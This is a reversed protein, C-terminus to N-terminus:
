FEPALVTFSTTVRCPNVTKVTELSAGLVTGLTRYDSKPLIEKFM